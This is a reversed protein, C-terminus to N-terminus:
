ASSKHTKRYTFLTVSTTGPLLQSPQVVFRLQCTHGDTNTVKAVGNHGTSPIIDVLPYLWWWSGGEKGRKHLKPAKSIDLEVGMPVRILLYLSKINEATTPVHPWAVSITGGHKKTPESSSYILLDQAEEGEKPQPGHLVLHLGFDSPAHVRQRDADTKERMSQASAPIALAMEIVCGKPLGALYGVRRKELKKGEGSQSRQRSSNQKRKGM